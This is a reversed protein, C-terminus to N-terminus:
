AIKHARFNDMYIVEKEEHLEGRDFIFDFTKVLELQETYKGDLNIRVNNVGPVLVITEQSRSSTNIAFGMNINNQTPNYIDILLYDCDTFDMKQFYQGNTIFELCPNVRGEWNETGDIVIKLAKKGRTVHEEVMTMRGLSSICLANLTEGYTEFDALIYFGNEFVNQATVAYPDIRNVPPNNNNNNGGSSENNKNCSTTLLILSLSLVITLVLTLLKYFKKM